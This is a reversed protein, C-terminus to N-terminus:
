KKLFELFSLRDLFAIENSLPIDLIADLKDKEPITKDRLSELKNLIYVKDDSDVSTQINEYVDSQSIKYTRSNSIIYYPLVFVLLFLFILFISIKKYSVPPDIRSNKHTM